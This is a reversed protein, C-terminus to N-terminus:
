IKFDDPFAAKMANFCDSADTASTGFGNTQVAFAQVKVTAGNLKAMEANDFKADVTLTDFLVIKDEAEQIDKIFIYIVWEHKPDKEDNYEAVTPADQYYVNGAADTYIMDLGNWNREQTSGTQILGGSVFKTIDLNTYTKPEATDAGYLDLLDGNITIKAAIYSNESDAAVTITPDKTVTMAPFLHYTQEDETRTPKVEDGDEEPTVAVLNGKGDPEVIAEDLSIDVKGATFTNTQAHTDTFYALTAGTVATLALAIILCLAIIKKKM